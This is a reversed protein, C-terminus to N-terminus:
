VELAFVKLPSELNEPMPFDIKSQGLSELLNFGRSAHKLGTKIQTYFARKSLQANNCCALLMGDPAVISAALEILEDYNAAASFRTRKSNAFSPPDLILVDFKDQRRAFRSLWDFVDGSIFDFRKPELKNLRYNEQGWDLVRRSLDLNAARTAGNLSSVLGFGCTYAFTNLVTRGAVHHGLWARPERMDLFLGVSLDGGPRILYKVGHELIEIEDIREGWAPAEPALSDRNVNAVHRAEKPRRKLYISVPQFTAVLAELLINEQRQSLETYLSAILVGAFFDVSLDAIEDASSNVLRFATTSPNQELSVRKERALQLLDELKPKNNLLAPLDSVVRSYGLVKCTNALEFYKYVTRFM